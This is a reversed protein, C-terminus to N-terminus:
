HLLIGMNRFIQSIFIYCYSDKWMDTRGELDSNLVLKDSQAVHYASVVVAPANMRPMILLDFLILFLAGSGSKM